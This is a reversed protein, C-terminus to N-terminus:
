KDVLVYTGPMDVVLTVKDDVVTVSKEAWAGSGGNATSDWYLIVLTEGTMSSPIEFSLTTATDAPLPSVVNGDQLLVIGIGSVYKSGDPLADFLSDEPAETLVASYDCLNTFTVEFGAMKLTTSPETCSLAIGQDGTVPIFGALVGNGVKKVMEVHIVFTTENSNGRQDIARCTVTTDGVPFWSGSLPQCDAVGNGNVADSTNPPMYNVITGSPRQTDVSIDVHSEIAPPTTDQVTVTFTSTATNEAQDTSTCTVTTTTIAFTSGSAPTCSVSIGSDLNDNVMATYNVTAGSPGTAENTINAVTIVPETKDININNVSATNSVNGANDTCTGSVSQGSGETSLTVPATCSAIGSGVDTGSFSVTVDTNNWGNANPAPSASASASPITKDIQVTVVNSAASANGANDTTTQATSTGSATLVQDPPCSLIGSTGDTCTFHITVNTNYWGAATPPTTAAAVITPPTKDIKVTVVNSAASVNGANDTATQATSSVSPGDTSLIQNPPCTAIGSGGADLCTFHVTVNSRYWGNSGNPGATAAASITPPTTDILVLIFDSFDQNGALDTARQLWSIGSSNFSQSAPCSAIGSGGVNDTCTFSVTVPTTNNWGANPAPNVTAVITPDTKDIKVIVVNSAASVNGARDTATQATSSVSPGETSLIQDPPCTAIGSGGADDTCTFHIRVNDRYWGSGNPSTTAAASITPPTTDLLCGIGAVWVKPATCSATLNNGNYNYAGSTNGFFSTDNFTLPRNGMNTNFGWEGNNLFSSNNVTVSNPNNNSIIIGNGDNNQATVNTLTITRASLAAGDHYNGGNRRADQFTTDSITISGNNGTTASFGRNESTTNNGDFFSNQVIINGNSTTLNATNYRNGGSGSQNNVVVSNLNINGSTGVTLSNASNINNFTINNVFINSNWNIISLPVTFTSVGNITSSGSVGNWGGQLTLTFNDWTNYNAGNIIVASASTDAGSQIWITGNTRNVNGATATILAALSAYSSTCGNAGPTPTAQTAPCWVPDQLAIIDAAEQSGLPVVEGDANSVVVETNEPLQSILAVDNATSDTDALAEQTAVDTPVDSVIADTTLTEETLVLEETPAVDETLVPEETALSESVVVDAAAGEETLTEEPPTVVEVTEPSPPQNDDALVGVPFVMSLMLSLLIVLSFVIVKKNRM